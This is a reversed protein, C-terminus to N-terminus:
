GSKIQRVSLKNRNLLKTAKQAIISCKLEFLKPPEAVILLMRLMLIYILMIKRKMFLICAVLRLAKGKEKTFNRKVRLTRPERKFVLDMWLPPIDVL